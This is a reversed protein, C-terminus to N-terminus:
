LGLNEAAGATRKAIRRRAIAMAIIGIVVAFWLTALRTLITAAVAIQGNIGPTSKALWVAMSGETVGLGGPLFSLAGAITTVAYILTDLGINATVGPFAAVILAFGACECLWAVTGIVTATLLRAPRCLSAIGSYIEIMQVRFKRTFMPSTILHIMRHALAPWALVLLGAAIVAAAAWVIATGFGHLAVGVVALVLLATLDSVREAIVIPASATVPVDAMERLLYSKVLEGVKGPTISLSMGAVFVLASDVFSVRINRQRLYISWRVFRIAYNAFALGLAAIFAWWRFGALSHGIGRVDGGIAWYAITAIVVILLPLAFRRIM